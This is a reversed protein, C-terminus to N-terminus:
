EVSHLPLHWPHRYWPPINTRYLICVTQTATYVSAYGSDFRETDHIERHLRRLVWFPPSFLSFSIIVISICVCTQDYKTDIFHHGQPVLLTVSHIQKSCVSFMDEDKQVTKDLKYNNSQKMPPPRPIRRLSSESYPASYLALTFRKVLSIQYSGVVVHMM